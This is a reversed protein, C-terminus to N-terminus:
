NIEPYFNNGNIIATNDYVMSDIKNKDYLFKKSYYYNIGGGRADCSNLCIKAKEILLDGDTSCIGGGSNKAKNNCINCNKILCNKINMGGGNFGSKNNSILSNEGDIILNGKAFIGGGSGDQTSNNLIKTNYLDVECNDESFIAGGNVEAFNDNLESNSIKMSSYSLYIAGGYKSNCNTIKLNNIQINKCDM